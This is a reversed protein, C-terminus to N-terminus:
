AATRFSVTFGGGLNRVTIRFTGASGALAPADHERGPDQASRTLAGLHEAIRRDQDSQGDNLWQRLVSEYTRGIAPSDSIQLLRAAPENWAAVRMEADLLLVPHEVMELVAPIVASKWDNDAQLRKQDTIGSHVCLIEGNETRHEKIVLWSGDRLRSEFADGPALHQSVCTRIWNEAEHAPVAIGGRQVAQRLIEEFSVGIEVFDAIPPHLDKYRQNFLVVRDDRDFVIVGDTISELVQLLRQENSPEQLRADDRTKLSVAQM